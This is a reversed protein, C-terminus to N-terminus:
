CQQVYIIYGDMEIGQESGIGSVGNDDVDYTRRQETSGRVILLVQYNTAQVEASLGDDISVKQGTRSGHLVPVAICEVEAQTTPGSYSLRVFEYAHGGADSSCALLCLSLGSSLLACLWCVPRKQSFTM